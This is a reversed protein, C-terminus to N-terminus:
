AGKDVGARVSFYTWREPRYLRKRVVRLTTGYFSQLKERLSLQKVWVPFLKLGNYRPFPVRLAWLTITRGWIAGRVRLLNEQSDPLTSLPRKEASVFGNAIAERLIRQGRRTRVVVLSSGKEGSAIARYWPDGISIDALEGTHDACMHCRWQRKKQLIDGWGAAYSISAYNKQDEPNNPVVTMEGPWGHGRYRLEKLENADTADTSGLHSMLDFTASVSPVGACFIGITLGLNKKLEPRSQAAMSAAAVDCPKGIFVLPKSASEVEHLRDCPSSPAYRSGSAELLEELNTSIASRNLYPIDKRAKTHLAGQMGGKEICYHALANVVGGSSGRFRLEHNEAHGEWIELVPGWEDLLTEEIQECNETSPYTIQRGPCVKITQEAITGQKAVNTICRPRRAQELTEVMEVHDPYLGACAGCGMCLHAAAIEEVNNLTNKM